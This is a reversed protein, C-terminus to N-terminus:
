IASINFDTSLALPHLFHTQMIYKYIASPSTVQFRYTNYFFILSYRSVFTISVNNNFINFRLRKLLNLNDLVGSHLKCSLCYQRQCIWLSCLIGGAYCGCIEPFIKSHVYPMKCQSYWEREKNPVPMCTPDAM